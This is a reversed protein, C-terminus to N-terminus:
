NKELLKNNYKDAYLIKMNFGISKLAFSTGIRGTGIIGLTKDSVDQGLMLMPDWGKFKGKRTYNDGEVIRRSISFLLAWAMESTTNTLVDPTNSVPIKNNSASKIDINDYGVAYNAIMKLKPESNIIEKDIDDTLLCILGDKNKLGKIIELKTLIHNYKNIEVNYGQKSLLDLGEKPIKRTVFINM